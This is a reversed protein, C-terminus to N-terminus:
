NESRLNESFVNTFENRDRWWDLYGKFMQYHILSCNDIISAIEREKTYDHGKAIAGEESMFYKFISFISNDVESVLVYYKDTLIQRHELALTITSLEKIFISHETLTSDIPKLYDKLDKLLSGNYSDTVKKNKYYTVFLEVDSQLKAMLEESFGDAIKKTREKLKIFEDNLYMFNTEEHSKLIQSNIQKNAKVQARFSLAVLFASLLGIAPATIGGITDGIEGSTTFDYNGPQSLLFPASVVWVLAIIILIAVIWGQIRDFFSEKDEQKKVINFNIPVVLICCVRDCFFLIPM